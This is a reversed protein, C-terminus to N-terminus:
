ETLTPVIHFGTFHEIVEESSADIHEVQSIVPGKHCMYILREVLKQEGQIVAEVRGDPLNRVWGSLGLKRAHYKVFQRFGVGQVFGSIYLHVQFTM